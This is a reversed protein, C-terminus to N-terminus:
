GFRGGVTGRPIETKQAAPAWPDLGATSGIMPRSRIDEGTIDAYADEYSIKMRLARELAKKSLAHRADRTADEAEIAEVALKDGDARIRVANRRTADPDDDHMWSIGAAREEMRKKAYQELKQRYARAYQLTKADVVEPAHSMKPAKRSHSPVSVPVPPTAPTIADARPVSAGNGRQAALYSKLWVVWDLQQIADLLVALDDPSLRGRAQPQDGNVTGSDPIVTYKEVFQWPEPEEIHLVRRGGDLQYKPQCLATTM